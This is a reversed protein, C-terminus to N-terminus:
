PLVPKFGTPLWGSTCRPGGQPVGLVVGHYVRTAYVRHYVRTAYVRHYVRTPVGQPVGQFPVGQPVGQYTCGPIGVRTHVGRYVWGPICWWICGPYVRYMCWQVDAGPVGVGTTENGSSSARPEVLLIISSLSARTLRLAEFTHSNNYDEACLALREGTLIVTFIPYFVPLGRTYGRHSVGRRLTREGDPWGIKRSIDSILSPNIVSLHEVM